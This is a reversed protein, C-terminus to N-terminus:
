VVEKIDFSTIYVGLPNLMKTEETVEYYDLTVLASFRQTKEVHGSRYTIVDYFIVYTNDTQRLPYEMNVTQTKIGTWDFPNNEMFFTNLQALAASQCINNCEQIYSKQAKEDMVWTYMNAILKQVQYTKHYEPINAKGWYSKDVKGVYTANGNTDVTVIVPITKPLRVAYFCIFLSIFFSSLSVLAIIQWMRANKQSLGQITDAAAVMPENYDRNKNKTKSLNKKVNNFVNFPTPSADGDSFFTKLGAM